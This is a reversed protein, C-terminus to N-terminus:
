KGWGTEGNRATTPNGGGKKKIKNKKNKYTEIGSLKETACEPKKQQCPLNDRQWCGLSPRRAASRCPAPSRSPGPGEAPDPRPSAASSPVHVCWPGLQARDRRATCCPCRNSLFHCHLSPFPRSPVPLPASLGLVPRPEARYLGCSRGNWDKLEAMKGKSGVQSMLHEEGENQRSGVGKRRVGGDEEGSSSTPIHSRPVHQAGGVELNLQQKGRQLEANGGHVPARRM